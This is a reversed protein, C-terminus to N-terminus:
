KKPNLTNAFRYLKIFMARKTGFESQIAQQKILEMESALENKSMRMLKMKIVAPNVNKYM